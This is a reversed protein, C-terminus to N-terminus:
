TGLLINQKINLISQETLNPCQLSTRSEAKDIVYVNHM